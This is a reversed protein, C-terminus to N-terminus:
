NFTRMLAVLLGIVAVGLSITATIVFRALWRMTNAEKESLLAKIEAVDERTAMHGM